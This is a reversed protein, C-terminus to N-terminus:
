RSDLEAGDVAAPRAVAEVDLDAERGLVFVSRQPAPLLEM